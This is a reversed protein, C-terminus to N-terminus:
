RGEFQLKTLATNIFMYLHRLYGGNQIVCASSTKRGTNSSGFCLFEWAWNGFEWLLEWGIHSIGVKDSINGFDSKIANKNVFMNQKPREHVFNRLNKDFPFKKREKMESSDPFTFKVFLYIFFLIIMTMSLDKPFLIEM